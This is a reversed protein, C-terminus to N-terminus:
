KFQRRWGLRTMGRPKYVSLATAVLLVVLAAGAITVLRVRQGRIAATSLTAKAAADAVENIVRTHLLLIIISLVNIGFKILVWYHRFLGWKTSCSLWLGTFLSAFALPVIVFWTIPEMGLYVARVMQADKGTLGAVALALFGAVAGFWGVSATIHATLALKRFSSKVIM